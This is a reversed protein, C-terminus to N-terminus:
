REGRYGRPERPETVNQKTAQGKRFASMIMNRMKPVFKFALMLLVFPAVITLLIMGSSVADKTSFPMKINDVPSGSEGESPAPKTETGEKGSESIPQLSVKPNKWIDYKMDEKPILLEKLSADVTQYEEGDVYIKVKGSSPQSWSYLFDGDETETFGGGEIKPTPEVATETQVTVGESELGETSETKLTYEYKTEPEVSLDNFYTGNTEFIPTSAAYAVSGGFMNEFFGKEEITDRYINVHHLHDQEPLNWSLNVRNFSPKVEVNEVEGAPEPPPILTKIGKTIGDTEHGDTYIATIKYTYNTDASLGTDTFTKISSDLSKILSGNRYITSGSFIMEGTDSPIDWTLAIENFSETLNLNTIEKYLTVDGYVDFHKVSQAGTTNTNLLQVRKVNKVDIVLVKNLDNSSISRQTIERYNSDYFKVYIGVRYSSTYLQLRKIDSESELEYTVSSNEYMLCTSGQDEDNCNAVNNISGQTEVPSKNTLLWDDAALVSQFPVLFLMAFVLFLVRKKM